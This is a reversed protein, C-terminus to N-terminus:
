HRVKVLAHVIVKSAEHSLKQRCMGIKCLACDGDPRVIAFGDCEPHELDIPDLSTPYVHFYEQM